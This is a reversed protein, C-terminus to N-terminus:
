ELVQVEKVMGEQGSKGPSKGMLEALSRLGPNYRSESVGHGGWAPALASRNHEWM